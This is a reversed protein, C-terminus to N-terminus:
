SLESPPPNQLQQQNDESSLVPEQQSAEVSFAVQRIYYSLFAAFVVMSIYVHALQIIFQYVAVLFTGINPIIALLSSFSLIIGGTLIYIIFLLTAKGICQPYTIIFKLNEKISDKVTFNKIFLGYFGFLTYTIWLIFTTIGALLICLYIFVSFFVSIAHSYHNLFMVIKSSIESIFGFLVTLLIFVLASFLAFFAVKWFFKKGYKNFDKFNFIIGKQLYQCMIGITGSFIYIWLSIIFIVYVFLCFMFIIAFILFKKILNISSLFIEIFSGKLIDTMDIGFVVFLIGLPISLILFLGFFTFFLFLFHIFLLQYNKHVTKLADNICTFLNM